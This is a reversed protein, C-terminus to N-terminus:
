CGEKMVKIGGSALGSGGRKKRKNRDSVFQSIGGLQHGPHGVDVEGVINLLKNFHYNRCDHRDPLLIVFPLDHFM